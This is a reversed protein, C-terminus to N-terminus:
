FEADERYSKVEGEWDRRLSEAFREQEQLDEQLLYQEEAMRQYMDSNTGSSRFYRDRAESLSIDLVTSITISLGSMESVSESHTLIGVPIVSPVVEEPLVLPATVYSALYTLSKFLPSHCLLRCASHGEEREITTTMTVLVGSSPPLLLDPWGNPGIPGGEFCTHDEPRVGPWGEKVVPRDVEVGGWGDPAEIAWRAGAADNHAQREHWVAERAKTAVLGLCDDDWGTLFM